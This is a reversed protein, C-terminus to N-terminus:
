QSCLSVRHNAHLGVIIVHSSYVIYICNCCKLLMIKIAAEGPRGAVSSDVEAVSFHLDNTSASAKHKISNHNYEKGLQM